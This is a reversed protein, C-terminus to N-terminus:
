KAELADLRASLTALQQKLLLNEQELKTNLEQFAKVLYPTLDAEIIKSKEGDGLTAKDADLLPIGEHVHGPFVQAFEQAIFGTRTGDPNADEGTNKYEFHCPNLANLKGSADTISRFNKKLREDSYTGWAGAGTKNAYLGSNVFQVRAVNAPRMVIETNSYTFGSLTSTRITGFIDGFFAWTNALNYPVPEGTESFGTGLRGLTIVGAAPAGNIVGDVGIALTAGPGVADAVAGVYSRASAQAIDEWEARAYSGV